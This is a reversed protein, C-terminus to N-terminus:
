LDLTQELILVLSFICHGTRHSLSAFPRSLPFSRAYTETSGAILLISCARKEDSPAELRRKGLCIDTQKHLPCDIRELSLQVKVLKASHRTVQRPYKRM